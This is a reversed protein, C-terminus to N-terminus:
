CKWRVLQDGQADLPIITCLSLDVVSSTMRLVSHCAAVVILLPVTASCMKAGIAVMGVQ